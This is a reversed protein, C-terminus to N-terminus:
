RARAALVEAAESQGNGSVGALGLIEGRHVSLSVDRLAPLGKNNLATIGELVLAAPQPEKEEPQRSVGFTARGVM